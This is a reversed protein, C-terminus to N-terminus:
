SVGDRLSPPLKARPTHVGAEANAELPGDRLRVTGPWLRGDKTLDALLPAVHAAGGLVDALELELKELTRRTRPNGRAAEIPGARAWATLCRGWDDDGGLLKPLATELIRHAFFRRESLPRGALAVRPAASLKLVAQASDCWYNVSM